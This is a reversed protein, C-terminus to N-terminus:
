CYPKPWCAAEHKQHDAADQYDPRGHEEHRLPHKMKTSGVGHPAYEGFLRLIVQADLIPELDPSRRIVTLPARPVKANGVQAVGDRDCIERTTRLHRHRALRM